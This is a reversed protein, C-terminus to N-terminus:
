KKQVRERHTLVLYIIVSVPISTIGVSSLIFPFWSIQDKTFESLDCRYQYSLNNCVWNGADGKGRADNRNFVQEFTTLTLYVLVFASVFSIFFYKLYKM